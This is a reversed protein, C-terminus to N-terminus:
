KTEGNRQRQAPYRLGPVLEKKVEPQKKSEPKGIPPPTEFFDVPGPVSNDKLRNVPHIHNCDESWNNPYRLFYSIAALMKHDVTPVDMPNRLGRMKELHLYPPLFEGCLMLESVKNLQISTYEDAGDSKGVQDVPRTTALRHLHPLLTEKPKTHKSVGCGQRTFAGLLVSKVNDWRQGAPVHEELLMPEIKRVFDVEFRGFFTIIRIEPDPADEEESDEPDPEGRGVRGRIPTPTPPEIGEGESESPASDPDMDHVFRVSRSSHNEYDDISVLYKEFGNAAVDKWFTTNYSEVTCLAQRLCEFQEKSM